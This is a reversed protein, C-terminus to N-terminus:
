LQLYKIASKYMKLKLEAEKIKIDLDSKKIPSDFFNCSEQLTSFGFSNELHFSILKEVYRKLQYVKTKINQGDSGTHVTQNRNQRLQELVQKELDREKYHFITRKITEDYDTRAKGTDTLYELLSWLKLFSVNLDQYDLARVYRIIAAEIESRYKSKGLLKRVQTIFELSDDSNSLLDICKQKKFYEPEYWYVNSEISGKDLHLTHLYGLTVQNVPKRTERGFTGDIIKNMRFNMIGRVLDLADLCKQAAEYNSKAETSVVVFQYDTRDKESIEKLMDLRAQFYKKPIKSSFTLVCENIKMTPLTINKKISLSTLLKYKKSPKRYYQGIEKKIIKLLDDKNLKNLRLVENIALRISSEAVQQPISADLDVMSFLATLYIENYLLPYSIKKDTSAKVNDHIKKIIEEPDFGKKWSIAM